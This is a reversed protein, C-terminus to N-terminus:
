LEVTGTVFAGEELGEAERVAKRVPMTWGGSEKDPFLSNAWRTGGITCVVKASGFNGRHGDAWQGTLAARRIADAAEGTIVVYASASNSTASRFMRLAATFAIRETM